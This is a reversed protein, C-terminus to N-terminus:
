DYVWKTKGLDWIMSYGQSERLEKETMVCGSPKRLGSKNYRKSGKVWYYDSRVCSEKRFGIALYLDGSHLRNDSYSVIPPTIGNLLSRKFMWSGLGYIKYKPDICFRKLEVGDINQRVPHSFLMVAVLLDNYYAGYHYKAGCSGIYHHKDLFPRSIDIDISRFSLKNTRIKEQKSIGLKHKLLQKPKGSKIEDEFFMMYRYNNNIAINRKKIDIKRSDRFQSHYRLGHCEVLIDGILADFKYGSLSFELKASPFWSKIIYSLRSVNNSICGCSKTKNGYIWSLRSSFISNCYLCRMSIPSNMTSVGHIPQLMSGQFYEQLISLDYKNIISRTNTSLPEKKNWWKDMIESCRGCSNTNRLHKIAVFHTNGCSCQCKLKHDSHQSVDEANELVTLKGYQQGVDISINNCKGCNKPKNRILNGLMLWHDRGCVCQTKIRLEARERIPVKRDDIIKLGGYEKGYYESLCKTKPRNDCNGINGSIQKCGCSSTLGSLVSKIAIKKIIGCRCKWSVKNSKNKDEVSELLTLWRIRKGVFINNKWCEGCTKRKIGVRYTTFIRRGCECIFETKVHSHRKRVILPTM